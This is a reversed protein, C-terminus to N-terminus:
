QSVNMFKYTIHVNQFMPIKNKHRLLTVDTLLAVPRMQHLWLSYALLEKDCDHMCM